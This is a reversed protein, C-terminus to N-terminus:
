MGLRTLKGVQITEGGALRTTPSTLIRVFLSYFYVAISCVLFM